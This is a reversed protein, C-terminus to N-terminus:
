SVLQKFSSILNLNEEFALWPRSAGYVADVGLCYKSFRTHRFPYKRMISQLWLPISQNTKVELVGLHPQCIYKEKEADFKPLFEGGATIKTDLTIRLDHETKSVLPKRVYRVLVVPFLDLRENLYDMERAEASDELEQIVLDLPLTNHAIGLDLIRRSKLNIRKKAVLNKHKEKIEIFLATAQGDKNYSRLRIKRRYGVSEERDLYFRLDATDYYVSAIEYSNTEDTHSDFDCFSELDRFLGEASQLDVLFKVEHRFRM